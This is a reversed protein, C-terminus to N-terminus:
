RALAENTVDQEIRQTPVETDVTGLWILFGILVLLLLLFILPLPSKKRRVPSLSTYNRRM